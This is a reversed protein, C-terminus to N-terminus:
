NEKVDIIYNSTILRYNESGLEIISEPTFELGNPLIIPYSDTFSAGVFQRDTTVMITLNM